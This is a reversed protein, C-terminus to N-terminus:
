LTLLKKCDREMFQYLELKPEGRKIIQLAPILVRWAYRNNKDRGSAGYVIGKMRAWIAASTCMPCPEYTSYLYCDELKYSNIKKSASRIANIEAHATSDRDSDVTPLGASIITDKKVVIAAVALRGIKSNGYALKIANKMFEPKPQYM